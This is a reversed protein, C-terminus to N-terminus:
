NSMNRLGFLEEARRRIIAVLHDQAWRSVDAPSSFTLRSSRIEQM